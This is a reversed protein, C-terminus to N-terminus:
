TKKASEEQGSRRRAVAGRPDLTAAVLRLGASRSFSRSADGRMRLVHALSLRTTSTAGARRTAASWLPKALDGRGGETLLRAMWLAYHLERAAVDEPTVGLRALTNTDISAASDLPDPEGRARAHASALAACTAEARTRLSRTSLQGTHTRYRLVVQPINAIRGHEAMRLWLDFDQALEFAPRYGSSAKFAATRMCAAPHIAPSQGAQLLKTIEADAEPYFQIGLEVGEDDVFIAAGGVAVVDDHSELYEVQLELRTPLAVDDADMVALFRSRVDRGGRNRAASVGRPAERLLRVRGDQRELEAVIDPTPDRSGDDVVILELDELTQELISEIAERVHASGDRVAMVVSVLPADKPM